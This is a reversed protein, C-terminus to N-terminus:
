TGRRGTVTVVQVTVDLSGPKRSNERISLRRIAVLNEPSEVRKLFAVLQQLGLTRLKMEVMVQTFPGEESPTSPKMSVIHKKVSTAAAQKELFSFLSFGPPRGELRRALSDSQRNLARYRAQMEEMRVVGQQRHILASKLRQRRHALPVLVFQFLVFFLLVTGGVGLATRDRASLTM